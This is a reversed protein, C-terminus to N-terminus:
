RRPATASSPPATSASCRRAAWRPTTSRRKQIRQSPRAQVLAAGSWAVARRARAGGPDHRDLMEALSESVKLCVNGTFGDTVVVDCRGNYIDRGEVNGIFNLSSDACSRSRRAQDARQGQGRGRGGVAARGAPQGQGRHRRSYVHGMVAFQFLQRPKPDVNAGADILVTYGCLSPLPARRDRAPGGRAARGHRVHRHGHRRRHQRGVRPGRCEGDKCWSPPWGCRRTASAASRRRRAGGGM